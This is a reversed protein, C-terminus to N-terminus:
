APLRNFKSKRAPFADPSALFSTFLPYGLSGWGSRKAKPEGHRQTSAQNCLSLAAFLCTTGSVGLGTTDNTDGSMVFLCHFAM